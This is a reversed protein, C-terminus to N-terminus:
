HEAGQVLKAYEGNLALLQADTGDELIRGQEMVLIRDARRITSLRHAIIITTRGHVLRQLARELIVETAVDIASTAEDLILVKPDAALARSLSILQRQGVSLNSGGEMVVTDYSDPLADIAEHTGLGLCLKEVEARSLEPRRFRINDLVTGSFLFGEQLVIGMHAHLDDQRFVKLDRGDVLVQGEQPDHFRAALHAITTKGAGTKGVIAVVQGAPIELNIGRLIWPGDEKYRFQVQRFSLEGKMSTLEEPQEPDKIEPQLELVQFVRRASTAANISMSYIDILMRIPILLMNMYLVCAVLDAPTIPVGNSMAGNELMWAGWTIVTVIGLIGLADMTPVLIATAKLVKLSLRVNEQNFEMYASLNKEERAFAQTVRVGRISEALYAVMRSNQSSLEEVRARIRKQLWAIIACGIPIVVAAVALLSPAVDWLKWAIIGTYSLIMFVVMLGFTLFDYITNMDGTGRAVLWGIKHTDYFNKSLSMLKAFFQTRLKIMARNTAYVTVMFQSWGFIRNALLVLILLGLLSGWDATALDDRNAIGRCRDIIHLEALVFCICLLNGLFIFWKFGDILGYLRGIIRFVESGFSRIEQDHEDLAQSM